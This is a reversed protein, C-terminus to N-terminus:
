KQTFYHCDLFFFLASHSYTRWHGSAMGTRSQTCACTVEVQKLGRPFAGVVNKHIWFHLSPLILCRVDTKQSSSPTMICLSSQSNSSSTQPPWARAKQLTGMKIAVSEMYIFKFQAHKSPADEARTQPTATGDKEIIAAAQAAECTRCNFYFAWLPLLGKIGLRLWQAEADAGNWRLRPQGTRENATRYKNWQVNLM